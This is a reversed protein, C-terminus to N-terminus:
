DASVLGMRMAILAMSSAKTAGTKLKLNQRHSEVTRLSINFLNAIQKNSLGDAIQALVAVERQTLGYPNDLSTKTRWDSSMCNVLDSSVYVGGACVSHIGAMLSDVSACRRMVGAVGHHLLAQSAAPDARTLLVILRTSLGHQRIREAIDRPGIKEIDASLVAVDPKKTHIHRWAVDGTSAEAITDLGSSAEIAQKLGLRFIPQQDAIAISAAKM